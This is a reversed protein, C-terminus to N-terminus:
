EKQWIGLLIARLLPIRSVIEQFILTFCIDLALILIYNLYMPLQMYTIVFYAIVILIPYHFVYIGFSIKKLYITVDNKFDIKAKAFGLIALIAIWLYFNTFFSTLCEKTTYNVGYYSKVYTIGTLIAVVCLTVYHKELQEIISNHSFIFYGLLFLFIYIGNRYVEVFPTNFLFSSGWVPFVMVLLYPLRVKEGLKLLINKRDIKRIIILVISALFLEHVFWLPGIGIFSFILYQVYLPIQNTNEGFMNVQLSTIYGILWGLLFIGSISPILIRKVREKFFEKVSRRKLCLNASIGAVIFLCCMFWPNVFYLFTDLIPTGVKNINSIVGVHNFIYIVHYIVVIWVISVRINDIYYRRMWILNRENKKEFLLILQM